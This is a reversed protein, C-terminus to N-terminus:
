PTKVAPKAGVESGEKSKLSQRGLERRVASEWTVAEQMIEAAADEDLDDRLHGEHQEMEKVSGIASRVSTKYDFEFMKFHPATEVILVDLRSKGGVIELEFHMEVESFPWRRGYIKEGVNKALWHFRTGASQMNKQNWYRMFQKDFKAAIAAKDRIENVFDRYAAPALQRLNTAVQRDISRGRTRLEKGLESFTQKEKAFLLDGLKAAVTAMKQKLDELVNPKEEAAGIKGNLTQLDSILKEAEKRQGPDKLSALASRYAAVKEEFTLPESAILVVDQTGRKEVWLQHAEGHVQFGVKPGLLLGKVKSAIGKVAQAGKALAAKGVDKGAQALNSDGIALLRTHVEHKIIGLFDGPAHGKPAAKAPKKAAEEEGSASETRSQTPDIGAFEKIMQVGDGLTAEVKHEVNDVVGAAKTAVSDIAGTVSAIPPKLPEVIKKVTDSDVIKNIIQDALPVKERVLQVISEKSVAEVVRFLLKVAPSPPQTIIFNLVMEIVKDVLKHLLQAPNGIKEVRAKIDGATEDIKTKIGGFFNGVVERLKAAANNLVAGPNSIAELIHVAGAYAMSFPKFWDKATINVTALSKNVVGAVRSYARKLANFVRVVAHFLKVLGKEDGGSAPEAETEQEGKEDGLTPLGQVEGFLAKVLLNALGTASLLKKVDDLKLNRLTNVFDIVAKAKNYLDPLDFLLWKGIIILESAGATVVGGAVEVTTAAVDLALKGGEILDETTIKFKVPENPKADKFVRAQSQLWANFQQKHESDMRDYFQDFVNTFQDVILGSRSFSANGMAVILLDFPTLRLGTERPKEAWKRIIAMIDRQNNSGLWTNDQLIFKIRGTDAKAEAELDNILKRRESAPPTGGEGEKRHLAVSSQSIQGVLPESTTFQTVQSAVSEAERELSVHAPGGALQIDNGPPTSRQQVIHTLEHSLLERGRLTGPAYQGAGFVVDRGLTYALANVSRTSEAARADTHVRVTSFDYGFRTEMFERTGKDLPQGPSHLVEHVIPPVDNVPAPNIATRQLTGKVPPQAQKQVNSAAAKESM